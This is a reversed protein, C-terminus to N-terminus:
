KHLTKTAEEYSKVERANAKRLSIIRITEKEVDVFCLAHLRNGIFGYGLLRVEGYDRRNDFSVIATEWGFERVTEFDIGHKAINKSNKTDDYELIM